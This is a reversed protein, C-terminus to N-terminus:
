SEAYTPSSSQILTFNPAKFHYKGARFTERVRLYKGDETLETPIKIGDLYIERNGSIVPIYVKAGTGVPLTLYLESDEDASIRWETIISGRVTDAAASVHRLGSIIAPKISIREYGPATPIIGGLYKTLWEKVHGMMAHNRSRVMGYWLEEFNWYEPLTTQGRELFYRYSPMTPNAVMKYIIDSRGGEALASFVQKLGVEGSTLHFDATEVARVLRKLAECRNEYPAIGSYLVCGYSSQTGSGYLHEPNHCERNEHFAKKIKESLKLYHVAAEVDNKLSAIETMIVAMRYYATTEVLVVPTKGYKTMEGWDGMEGRFILGDQEVDSELYSMYRKMASYNEDSLIGPDAYTMYYQWAAFIISGNWNLDENLGGIRFYEPAIAAIKGSDCQSDVMDRLIKPIWSSIDYTQAMSDFMLWSTELWGLKEIQPCDTFTSFMNSEISRETLVNIGNLIEDDSRFFGTKRNKTRLIYGKFNQSTLKIESPVTVELYRYGHYCFRPRYTEFGAGKTIYTDYILDGHDSASQTCSAQNIHGSCGDFTDVEAPYLTIKQGPKDSFISIEPVGAGNRGMDALFTSVGGSERIKTVTIKEPPIVEQVGIPEFERSMLKGQPIEDLPVLVAFGVNRVDAELRADYDEGGYWSNETIPSKACTWSEDTGIIESSGDSYNIVIQAIGKPRGFMGAVEAESRSDDTKYYRGQQRHIRYNAYQGNGLIFSVTNIGSRIQGTIDYVCYYVTKRPDSEGPNFFTDSGTKEDNIYAEFLGLGSIYLRASSIKRGADPSFDKSFISASPSSKDGSEIWVASPDFGDFLATEFFSPASFDSEIGDKDWVKVAWWVRQASKLEKGSYIIGFSRSGRVKGTDWLDFDGAALKEKSNAAVIRYATQRQGREPSSLKWSLVPHPTQIGLPSTLNQVRLDYIEMDSKRM